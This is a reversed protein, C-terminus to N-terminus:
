GTTPWAKLLFVRRAFYLVIASVGLLLLTVDHDPVPNPGPGGNPAKVDVSFVAMGTEGAQAATFTFIEVKASGSFSFGYLDPSTLAPVQVSFLTGTYTGMGGSAFTAFASDLSALLSSTHMSNTPDDVFAGSASFFQDITVTGSFTVTTSGSTPAVVTQNANDLVISTAFATAGGSLFLLVGVLVGTFSRKM